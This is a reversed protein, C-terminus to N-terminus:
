NLRTTSKNNVPLSAWINFGVSKYIHTDLKKRPLLSYNENEDIKFVRDFFLLLVMRCNLHNKFIFFDEFTLEGRELFINLM